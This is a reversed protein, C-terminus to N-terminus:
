SGTPPLIAPPPVENALPRAADNTYPVLAAGTESLVRTITSAGVEKLAEKIEQDNPGAGGLRAVPIPLSPMEFRLRKVFSRTRSNEAVDLNILCVAVSQRTRVEATVEGLLKQASLVTVEATSERLIWGLLKGATSAFENMPWILVSARHMKSPAPQADGEAKTSAADAEDEEADERFIEFIKEAMTTIYIADEKELLDLSQDRKALALAPVFVKDLCERLSHEKVYDRVIATAEVDDHALLRQYFQFHPEMVPKDGLLRTFIAFAPVYEGLVVLCVTLPTAMVLGVPGWLLTWAVASMVVGMASLGLSSGYLWPEIVNNSVLELCIIFGGVWLPQDWGDATIFSFALPLSAGIVPGIYPVYRFLAACLGWLAAYPVGMFYLGICITIGYSGNVILQMMLYRTIRKGADDCAKTAVTLNRHGSFSILRSRMDDWRLLLMVVLLLVLGATLLPDLVPLLKGLGDTNLLGPPPANYVPQPKDEPKEAEQPAAPTTKEQEQKDHAEGTEKEVDRTISDFTQYLKELAGGKTMKRVQIVKETINEKYKPIDNSLNYLQSGILWFLAGVFICGITVTIGTAAGRPMWKQFRRVLPNLMFSFLIGLALPIFVEKGWYLIGCTLTFSVLRAATLFSRHPSPGSGPVPTGTNGTNSPVGAAPASPTGAPGAQSTM